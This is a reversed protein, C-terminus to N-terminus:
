ACRFCNRCQNAWGIMPAFGYPCLSDVRVPYRMLRADRSGSGTSSPKKRGSMITTTPPHTASLASLLDCYELSMSAECSFLVLSTSGKQKRKEWESRMEKGAGM